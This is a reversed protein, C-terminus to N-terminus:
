QHLSTSLLVKLFCYAFFDFVFGEFVKHVYPFFLLKVNGAGRCFHLIVNINMPTLCENLFNMRFVLSKEIGHSVVMRM